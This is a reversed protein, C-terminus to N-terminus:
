PQDRLVWCIRLEDYHREAITGPTMGSLVARVDAVVEPARRYYRHRTDADAVAIVPTCDVVAISCGAITERIPPLPGVHGLRDEDLVDSLALLKDDTRIYINVETTLRTIPVLKHDRHFADVDEDPAMLFVKDFLRVTRMRPNTILEQVANRLAFNGMSHAVLFIRAGCRAARGAAAMYESFRQFARAMALGSRRADHKDSVYGLPTYEGNTPYSFAFPVLRLRETSYLAALEAADEMADAFDYAAGHVFVLAAKEVTGGGAGEPRLAAVMKGFLSASGWVQQKPDATATGAAIEEVTPMKEPEVSVSTVKWEAGDREVRATGVRFAGEPKRIERGFYGKGTGDGERNTAFFVDTM